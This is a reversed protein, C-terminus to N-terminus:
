RETSLGRVSFDVNRHNIVTWMYDDENALLLPSDCVFQDQDGQVNDSMSKMLSHLKSDSAISNMKNALKEKGKEKRISRPVRRITKIRTVANFQEPEKVEPGREHWISQLAQTVDQYSM